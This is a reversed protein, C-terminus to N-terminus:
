FGLLFHLKENHMCVGLAVQCGGGQGELIKREITVERQTNPNGLVAFVENDENRSQIAIAGQGAAAVMEEIELLLLM